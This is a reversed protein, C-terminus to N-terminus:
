DRLRTALPVLAITACLALAFAAALGIRLSVHLSEVIAVASGGLGAGASVGLSDVLLMLAVATGESGPAARSMTALYVTPYAVGMGLGAVTWAAYPVILPTSLLGSAVGIAGLGVAVVGGIILRPKSVRGVVRSQWWSGASWGLTALTVVLSAEAVTRGRINTLLLPVFGDVGFFALSLLFGSLLAWPCVRAGV